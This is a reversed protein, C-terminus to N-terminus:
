SLIACILQKEGLLCDLKLESVLKSHAFGTEEPSSITGNAKQVADSMQRKSKAKKCGVNAKQFGHFPPAVRYCAGAGNLLKCKGRHGLM